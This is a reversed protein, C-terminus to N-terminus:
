AWPTVVAVPHHREGEPARMEAHGRREDLREGRDANGVDDALGLPQGRAKRRRGAPPPEREDEGVPKRLLFVDKDRRELRPQLVNGDEAARRAVPELEGLGVHEVVAGEVAVGGKEEQELGVEAEPAEPEVVERRGVLAHDDGAGNRVLPQHQLDVPCRGRRFIGPEDAHAMVLERGDDEGLVRHEDARAMGVVDARDLLHPLVAPQGEERGDVVSEDQRETAALLDDAREVRAEGDGVLGACWRIEDEAEVADQSLELDGVLSQLVFGGFAEAGVPDHAEVGVAFLM